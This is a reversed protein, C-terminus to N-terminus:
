FFWSLRGFFTKDTQDTDLTKGHFYSIKTLTNKLPSWTAGFEVGKKNARQSFPDYTSALGVNVGAYRYAAFAGWSGAKRNAGKYALEVNYAKDYNDAKTNRAYAGFLRTTGGFKYGAGVSWINADDENAGYKNVGEFFDANFHRYSAGINFREKDNYLLEIGQYQATNDTTVTSSLKSNTLNWAGAEIKAKFKDGFTLQAGSFFDDVVLGEDADSYFPMRGLKVNFKNYNGEAFIYTLAVDGTSDDRFNETATFRAKASWHENVYATPFLRLQVQSRMKITDDGGDNEAHDNWYRYRM